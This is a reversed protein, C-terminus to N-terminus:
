RSLPEHRNSALLQMVDHRLQEPNRALIARMGVQQAGKVNELKDDIFLAHEPAVGARAAAFRYIRPDPKRVGLECSYLRAQFLQMWPYQQELYEAHWPNTNSLIFLPYQRALEQVLQVTEPIEQFIENWVMRFEHASHTSGLQTRGFRYFEESALANREFAEHQPHALFQEVREFNDPKGGAFKPIAINWDFTVLVMGLDFFIADIQTSM